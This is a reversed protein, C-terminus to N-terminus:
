SWMPSCIRLESKCLAPRGEVAPRWSQQSTWTTRSSSSRTSTRGRRSRSTQRLRLVSPPGTSPRSGTVRWGTSRAQRLNMDVLVERSAYRFKSKRREGLPTVCPRPSTRPRSTPTSACSKPARAVQPSSGSSPGVTVRMGGICPKGGMIAPDRTIRTLQPMDPSGADSNRSHVMRGPGAWDTQGSLAEDARGM